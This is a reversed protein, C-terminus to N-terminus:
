AIDEKPVIVIMAVRKILQPIELEAYEITNGQESKIGLNNISVSQRQITLYKQPEQLIDMICQMHHDPSETEMRTIALYHEVDHLERQLNEMSAIALPNDTGANHAATKLSRIEETLQRKRDQLSRNEIGSQSIAQNVKKLLFSFGLCKVGQAAHQRNLAPSLITHDTFAVATQMVERKLLEGDLEVGFKTKEKMNMSLFLHAIDAQPHASVFDKLNQSQAFLQLMADLNEFLVRVRPDIAFNNKSLHLDCPINEMLNDLYQWATDVANRLRKNYRSLVRIRPDVIDVVTEVAEAIESRHWFAAKHRGKSLMQELLCTLEIDNAKDM